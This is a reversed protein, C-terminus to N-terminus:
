PLFKGEGFCNYGYETGVGIASLNIGDKSYIIDKNSAIGVYFNSTKGSNMVMGKYTKDDPCASSEIWTIGGDDSYLLKDYSYDRTIILRTFGTVSDPIYLPYADFVYGTTIGTTVASAWTEADTSSFIRNDTIENYPFTIWKNNYWLLAWYPPSNSLLDLSDSITWNIGDNSYVATYGILSDNRNDMYGLMVFKSGNFKVTLGTKLYSSVTSISWNIGDYSYMIPNEGIGVAVFVGKGYTISNVWGYGNWWTSWWFNRENTPYWNFGDNSYLIYAQNSLSTYYGGMVWTGNGYAITDPYFEETGSIRFQNSRINGWDIGNMSFGLDDNYAALFGTYRCPMGTNIEKSIVNIQSGRSASLEVNYDALASLYTHTPNVDTSYENDGFNWNHNKPHGTSTDTFDIILANSVEKFIKFNDLLIPWNNYSYNYISIYGYRYPLTGTPDGVPTIEINNVFCKWQGNNYKINVNYFTSASFIYNFDINFTSSSIGIQSNYIDIIPSSCGDSPFIIWFNNLINSFNIDFSLEFKNTDSYDYIHYYLFELGCLDNLEFCRASVGDNYAASSAWSATNFSICDESNDQGQYWSIIQSSM